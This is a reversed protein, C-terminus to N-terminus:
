NRVRHRFNAGMGVIQQIQRQRSAAGGRLGVLLAAARPRCTLVRCNKVRPQSTSTPFSTPANGAGNMRMTSILPSSMQLKTIALPLQQARPCKSQQCAAGVAASFRQNQRVPEFNGEERGQDAVPKHCRLQATRMMNPHVDGVEPPFRESLLRCCSLKDQEMPGANDHRLARNV